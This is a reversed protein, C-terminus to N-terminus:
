EFLIYKGDKLVPVSRSVDHEASFVVDDPFGMGILERGSGCEKMLTTMNERSNLFASEAALAEPSKTGSLGNIISGAGVLDEFSPRLLDTGKWREGAAIVSIVKGLSMAVKATETANRLCGALVPKNVFEASLQSGNPSPLVLRDGTGLKNMTQLTLNFEANGSRSGALKANHEAAFETARNDRWRFPYIIAGREVGVCVCTTFSLVDVIVIVDSGPALEKLGELGWDFRVTHKDQSFLGM